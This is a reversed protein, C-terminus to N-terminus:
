RRHLRKRFAQLKVEKEKLRAATQARIRAAEAAADFKLVSGKDISISDFLEVPANHEHQFRKAHRLGDLSISMTTPQASNRVSQEATSLAETHENTQRGGPPM